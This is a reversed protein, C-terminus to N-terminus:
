RRRRGHVALEERLSDATVGCVHGHYDTRLRGENCLQSIRQKSVNLIAAAQGYPVVPWHYGIARAVALGAETDWFVVPPHESPYLAGMLRGAAEVRTEPDDLAYALTKLVDILESRDVIRRGLIREVRDALDLLETGVHGLFSDVDM